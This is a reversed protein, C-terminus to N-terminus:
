LSATRGTAAVAEFMVARAVFEVAVEGSECRQACEVDLVVPENQNSRQTGNM